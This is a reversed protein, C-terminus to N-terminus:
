VLVLVLSPEPHTGCASATRALCAFYFASALTIHLSHWGLGGNKVRFIQNKLAKSVAGSETNYLGLVSPQYSHFRTCNWTNLPPSSGTSQRIPLPEPHASAKKPYPKAICKRESLLLLSFGTTICTTTDLYSGQTTEGCATNIMEVMSMVDRRQSQARFSDPEWAEGYPLSCTCRVSGIELGNPVHSGAHIGNLMHARATCPYATTRPWPVTDHPYFPTSCPHPM